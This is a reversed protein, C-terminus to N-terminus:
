AWEAKAATMLQAFTPCQSSNLKAFAGEALQQGAASDSPYHLGARERNKAVRSALWDLDSSYNPAATGLCLSMLHGQTAHGSPFAPHKPPGFPPRLAPCLQSPRPRKYINKYYVAVMEGVCLAVEKVVYTAPRAVRDLGMLADWQLPGNDQQDLIESLYNMRTGDALYAFLTDIEAQVFAKAAASNDRWQLHAADITMTKWQTKMFEPLVLLSYLRPDWDSDRWVVASTPLRIHPGSAGPWTGTATLDPVIPRYGREPPLESTAAVGAGMSMSMSMSMSNPKLMSM